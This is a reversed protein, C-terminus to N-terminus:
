PNSPSVSGYKGRAEWSFGPDGWVTWSTSNVGASSLRKGCAAGGGNVDSGTGLEYWDYWDYRENGVRGGEWDEGPKEDKDRPEKDRPEKDGSEKARNRAFRDRFEADCPEKDRRELLLKNERLVGILSEGTRRSNDLRGRPFKLAASREDITVPTFGLSKLRNELWSTSCGSGALWLVSCGSGALWFVSCGLGALWLVSCGSVALGVEGTADLGPM